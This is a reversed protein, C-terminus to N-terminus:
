RQIYDGNYITLQRCAAPKSTGSMEWPGPLLMVTISSNIYGRSGALAVDTSGTSGKWWAQLRESFNWM